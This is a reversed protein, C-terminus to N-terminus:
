IEARRINKGCVRITKIKSASINMDCKKATKNLENVAIQQVDKSKATTVQYAACLTTGIRKGATVQIGYQIRSM